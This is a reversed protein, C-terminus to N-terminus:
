FMMIIADKHATEKNLTLELHEDGGFSSIEEARESRKLKVHSFM